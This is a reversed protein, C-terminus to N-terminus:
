VEAGSCFLFEHPLDGWDVGTTGADLLADM